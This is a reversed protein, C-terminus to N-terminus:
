LRTENLHPLCTNCRAPESGARSPPSAPGCASRQSLAQGSLLPEHPPGLGAGRVLRLRRRAAHAGHYGPPPLAPGHLNCRLEPLRRRMRLGAPREWRRAPRRQAAGWRCVLTCAGRQHGHHGAGRRQPREDRLAPLLPRLLRRCPAPLRPLLILNVALSAAALPKVGRRGATFLLPMPGYGSVSCPPWPTSTCTPATATRLPCPSPDTSCPASLLHAVEAALM